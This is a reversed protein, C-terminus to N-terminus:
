DRWTEPHGSGGDPGLDERRELEEYIKVIAIEISSNCPGSQSYFIRKLQRALESLSQTDQISLDIEITESM